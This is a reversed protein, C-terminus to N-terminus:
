IGAIDRGDLAALGIRLAQAITTPAQEHSARLADSLTLYFMGRISMDRRLAEADYTPMTRDIFTISSLPFSTLADSDRRLTVTPYLEGELIVRLSTDTSYGNEEIAAQVKQAVDEVSAAGTIDLTVSEFRHRSFSVFDEAITCEEGNKEIDLRYFGGSGLEEFGRGELFAAHSYTTKGARELPTAPGHGFAAYDAGFAALSEPTTNIFLTHSALDCAGVILNIRDHRVPSAGALPNIARRQSLVAWGYVTVGLEPLDFHDLTDKEFILVNNPFRGSSYLSDPTYPDEAGPAIVFRCPDAEELKRLLHATDSSTLYRSYLNGAVLVLDIRERKIYDFLDDLVAPFRDYCERCLDLPLGIYPNGIAINALHLVRLTGSM